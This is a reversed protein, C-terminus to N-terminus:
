VSVADHSHFTSRTLRLVDVECREVDAFVKGKGGGLFVTETELLFDGNDVIGGTISVDNVEVEVGVRGIAFGLKDDTLRHLAFGVNFDVIHQALAHHALLVTLQPM